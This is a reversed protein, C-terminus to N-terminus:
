FKTSIGVTAFRNFPAKLTYNIYGGVGWGETKTELLYDDFGAEAFIGLRPSFYYAAGVDFGFAFGAITDITINADWSDKYDGTWLGLAFGIKGVLYLDFKPFLDFHYAARLLLPIAMITDEYQNPNSSWGFMVRGGSFGAEVGLSLPINIPLLYDLSVNGGIGIGADPPPGGSVSIGAISSFAAGGSITIQAWAGATLGAFLLTFIMTKFGKAMPMEKFIQVTQKFVPYEANKATIRAITGCVSSGDNETCFGCLFNITYAGKV